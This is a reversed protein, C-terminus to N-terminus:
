TRPGRASGTRMTDRAAARALHGVITADRKVQRLEVGVLAVCDFVVPSRQEDNGTRAGAFCPHQRVTHGVEDCSTHM